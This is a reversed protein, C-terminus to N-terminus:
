APAHQAVKAAEAQCNYSLGPESCFDPWKGTARWYEVLRLRAALPMFRPDRRMAQTEPTFLFSYGGRASTIDGRDPSLTDALAYADDVLGLRSLAGIRYTAPFPAGRDLLRLRVAAVESNAEGREIRGILRLLEIDADSLNKPRAIRDDLTAEYADWKGELPYIIFREFWMQVTGPWLRHMRTLEADAEENRGAWALVLDTTIDLSLPNAAQARQVFPVAEKFRGVSVLHLGKFINAYPWQPDAALGQDLLRERGALDSWPRLLSLAVYADADKPDIELARMAEREAEARLQPAQDAPLNPVYWALFKGLASHAPGFEPAKVTVKRFTDLIAYIQQLDGGEAETEFYDCGKLYLGLAEPSSLGGTSRLARSACNMVAIIRAGVQAELSPPDAAPGALEATWLTIAHSADDLRVRVHLNSGEQRVTGDFLLRVGLRQIERSRDAGRLAEAEDSSITQMDNASLVNQLQDALGDAFGQVQAGSTLAKFPLIAVNSAHVPAPRLLGHGPWFLVAALVLLAGSALAAIFPFRAIPTRWAAAPRAPTVRGPGGGEVMGKLDALFARWAPDKPSGNWHSLDATQTLEFMVPRDCPEITVPVLTKHRNALTAEARVWRSAVSRPSWLVVVAKAAKLANETVLDYEEGARLTTDWWVELGAAEFAEAFRRAVARDDRNYSLFIDPM